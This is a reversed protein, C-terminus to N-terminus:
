KLIGIRDMPWYIFEAKGLMLKEKITHPDWNVMVSKSFATRDDEDLLQNKAVYGLRSDLSNYRNDGMVFYEKSNFYANKDKPFDPFNRLTFINFNTREFGELYCSLLFINYLNGKNNKFYNNDKSLEFYNNSLIENFLNLLCIKYVANTLKMYKTYPSDDEKINIKTNIENEFFNNNNKSIEMFDKLKLLNNIYINYQYNNLSIELEKEFNKIEDATFHDKGFQIPLEKNNFNFNIMLSRELMRQNKETASSNNNVTNNITKILTAFNYKSLNNIFISKSLILNKKLDEINDKEIIKESENLLSRLYPTINQMDMNPNDFYYLDPKGYEKQKDIESMLKWGSTATKKYVKDNVLCVKEGEKAICRKVIFREKPTGDAKKDIDVMSLTAMFIFPHFIRTFVNKYKIDSNPNDVDPNIFVVIDGIKPKIFSPLKWDTLPIHPGYVLKNVFVHDRKVFTPVMSESPIAYM